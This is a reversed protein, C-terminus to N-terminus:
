KSDGAPKDDGSTAGVTPTFTSVTKDSKGKKPILKGFFRAFRGKKKSTDVPAQQVPEPADQQPESSVAPETEAREEGEEAEAIARAAVETAPPTSSSSRAKAVTKPKILTAAEVSTRSQQVPAAAVQPLAPPAPAPVIVAAPNAVPVAAGRGVFHRAPVYALAAAAVMSGGIVKLRRSKWVQTRAPPMVRGYIAHELELRFEEASQWRNIPEKHLAKMIIRSLEPGIGKTLEVPAKPAHQVQALMVSLPDDGSFPCTGAAIEYLVVGLAYLDSRRDLHGEGRVQEPSVYAPLPTASGRPLSFGILKVQGEATIRINHPNIDGHVVNYSHAYQLASLVRVVLPMLEVAPKRAIHILEHLSSGEIFETTMVARGNLETAEYFDAINQHSLLAHLRMESVLSDLRVQSTDPQPALVRLLEFREAVVNRVKYTTSAASANAVELLEYPGSSKGVNFLGM